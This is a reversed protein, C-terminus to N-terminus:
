ISATPELYLFYFSATRLIVVSLLAREYAAQVKDRQLDTTQLLKQLDADSVVFRQAADKKPLSLEHAPSREMLLHEVLFVGLGRLPHFASRITRPRYGGESLEIQYRRLIIPTFHELTAPKTSRTYGKEGLWKEFRHLWSVYCVATAPSAGREHRLSRVYDESAESFLM